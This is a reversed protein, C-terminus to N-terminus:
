DAGGLDAPEGASEFAEIEAASPILSGAGPVAAAVAAIVSATSTVAISAGPSRHAVEGWCPRDSEDLDRGRRDREPWWFARSSELDRNDMRLDFHNHSLRAYCGIGHVESRKATTRARRNNVNAVRNDAATGYMHQSARAGGICDNYAVSRYGSNIGVPNHGLKARVAELRWMLRRVNRKVRATSVVGGRFTGEYSNARAGCMPNFNQTFESYNFHKTSGNPDRLDELIRFVARNAVSNAPLGHFTKFAKVAAATGPGFQGDLPFYQKGDQPYWGAVRIQLMKVDHGSDGRRLTRSFEFARAPAAGLLAVAIAGVVAWSLANRRGVVM